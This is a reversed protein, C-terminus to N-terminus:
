NKKAFGVIEEWTINGEVTPAYLAIGVNTEYALGLARLKKLLPHEGSEKSDSDVPKSGRAAVGAQFALREIREILERDAIDV